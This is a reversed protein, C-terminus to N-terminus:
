IVSVEKDPKFTSRLEPKQNWLRVVTRVLNRIQPVTGQQGHVYLNKSGPHLQFTVYSATDELTVRDYGCMEAALVTVPGFQGSAGRFKSGDLIEKMGNFYVEDKFTTCMEYLMGSITTIDYDNKITGRMMVESDLRLNEYVNANQHLKEYGENPEGYITIHIARDQFEGFRSGPADDNKTNTHWAEVTVWVIYKTERWLCDSHLYGTGRANKCKSKWLVWWAYVDELIERREDANRPFNLSNIIMDEKDVAFVYEGRRMVQDERNGNMQFCCSSDGLGVNKGRRFMLDGDAKEVRITLDDVVNALPHGYPELDDNIIKLLFPYQKILEQNKKANPRM